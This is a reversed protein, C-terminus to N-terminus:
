QYDLYTKGFNKALMIIDSMNIIGDNNFDAAANYLTHSSTLSFVKAIIIVDEMNIVQNNNMDGEMLGIPSNPGSISLSLRDSPIKVNINRTLFGPKSIKLTFETLSPTIGNIEFLGKFDSSASYNTGEIEAKFGEGKVYGNISRLSASPTSTPSPTVTPSSTITPKLTPTSSPLGVNAELFADM